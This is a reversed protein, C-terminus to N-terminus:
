FSQFTSIFFHQGANSIESVFVLYKQEQCHSNGKPSQVAQSSLYAHIAIHRIVAIMMWHQPHNVFQVKEAAFVVYRIILLPINHLIASRRNKQGCKKMSASSKANTTADGPPSSGFLEKLFIDFDLNFSDQIWFVVYWKREFWVKRSKIPFRTSIRNRTQRSRVYSVQANSETKQVAINDSLYM